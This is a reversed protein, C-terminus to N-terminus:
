DNTCDSRKKAVYEKMYQNHKEKNNKKWDKTREVKNKMFEPDTKKKEYYRKQAERIYEPTKFVTKGADM